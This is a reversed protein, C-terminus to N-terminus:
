IVIQKFCFETPDGKKAFWTKTRHIRYSSHVTSPKARQKITAHCTRNLRLQFFSKAVCRKFIFDVDNPWKIGVTLSDQCLTLRHMYSPFSTYSSPPHDTFFRPLNVSSSRRSTQNKRDTSKFSIGHVRDDVVDGRVIWGQLM